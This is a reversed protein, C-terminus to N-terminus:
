PITLVIKGVTRGSQSLDQARACETLPLTELKALNVKGSDILDAIEKLQANNPTVLFGMGTGKGADKCLKAAGAGDAISVVFGDNKVAAVGDKTTDGGVCDFVVDIVPAAALVRDAVKGESYDIVHDAGLGKVVNVNKSSCTGVVTAGKSKAFQVAFSGCGGAAGLVLLTQGAKLGGKDFIAQWATLGALPVGAAAVFSLTRPKFALKSEKVAVYEASTGNDSLVEDKYDDSEPVPRQYAYVEDGVQFRTCKAGVASVTGSVDWGPIIPLKHTMVQQLYGERIKWDVPNVGSARVKVLVENPLPVPIPHERYRLKDSHGFEDYIV